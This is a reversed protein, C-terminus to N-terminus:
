FSGAVDRMGHLCADVLTLSQEYCGAVGSYTCRFADSVSWVYELGWVPRYLIANLSFLKM